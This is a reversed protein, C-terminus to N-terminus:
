GPAETLSMALAVADDRSLRRGTELARGFSEQTMERRLETLMQDRERTVWMVGGGADERIADSAAILTAADEFRSTKTLTIEQKKLENTITAEVVLAEEYTNTELIYPETCSNVIFSFVLLLIISYITKIQM